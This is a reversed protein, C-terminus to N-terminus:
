LEKLNGFTKFLVRCLNNVTQHNLIGLSPHSVTLWKTKELQGLMNSFGHCNCQLIEISCTTCAVFASICFPAIKTVEFQVWLKMRNFAFINSILIMWILIANWIHLLFNQFKWSIKFITACGHMQFVKIVFTVKWILM